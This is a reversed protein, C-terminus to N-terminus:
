SDAMTFVEVADGEAMLVDASAAPISAMDDIGFPGYHKMDMGVLENVKRLFKITVRRTTEDRQAFEVLSPKGSSLADLLMEYRRRQRSGALCVYREEPLLLSLGKQDLAKRVRLDLLERSMSGIMRVQRAILRETVESNGPSSSRKLQKGYVSIKSYFDGPLPCLLGSESEADLCRKLM